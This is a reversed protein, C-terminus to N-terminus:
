SSNARVNSTKKFIKPPTIVAKQVSWKLKFIRRWLLHYGVNVMDSLESITISKGDYDVRVNNCRNNQNVKATVVSCTEPSYLLGNGKLDKDINMGQKWGNDICWKFYAHFDNIWEDCVKTGRGGYRNYDDSNVNYCRRKMAEWSRYLPHRKEGSSLNHTTIALGLISEKYCGCSTTHNVKTLNGYFYEKVVGCDCKAVVKLMSNSYRGLVKEIVLKGFRKNILSSEQINAM